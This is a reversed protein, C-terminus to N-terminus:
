NINFFLEIETAIDSHIDLIAQSADIIFVISRANLQYTFLIQAFNKKYQNRYRAIINDVSADDKRRIPKEGSKCFKLAEEYSPYPHNSGNVFYRSTLRKIVDELTIHLHFICSTLRNEKFFGSLWAAEEIMRGPGQIILGKFNKLSEILDKELVYRLDDILVTQGSLMRDEIRKARDFDSFQDSNSSTQNNNVFERLKTGFDFLEYGDLFKGLLEAQTGKGSGPPGYLIIIRPLDVNNDYFM